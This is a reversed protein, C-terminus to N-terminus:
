SATAARRLRDNIALGIGDDPIPAIAIRPKDSAAAQHLCEYLNAAARALDGKDSLNCDGRVAGFGIFFEDPAVEQANRRLPKGPSYHRATQGPAEIKAKEQVTQPGLVEELAKTTIPGPRLLNWRGGERLAIITSELGDHTPGGDIVAPCRGELSAIVHEPRTPSVEESRNASPAALPFPLRELLHQMVPHAPARLAITALGASVAKALGAEERMPLVLTLPGPWFRRAVDRARNDFHAFREAQELDKVHVILPNFSPRGKAAYIAAVAEASDARAALGYVTETPVAVLGGETLIAVAHAFGEDTPALQQTVNKRAM